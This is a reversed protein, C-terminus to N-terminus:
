ATAIAVVVPADRPHLELVRREAALTGAVIVVEIEDLAPGGLVDSLRVAQLHLRERLEPQYPHSEQEQEHAGQRGAEPPL